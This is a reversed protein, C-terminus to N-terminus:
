IFYRRGDSVLQVQEIVISSSATTGPCIIIDVINRSTSSTFQCVGNSDFTLYNEVPNAYDADYTNFFVQSTSSVGRAKIMLTVLSSSPLVIRQLLGKYAPLGSTTYLKMFGSLDTSVTLDGSGLEKSWNDPVGDSNSDLQLDSNKVLNKRQWTKELILENNGSRLKGSVYSGHPSLFNILTSASVNVFRLDWGYQWVFNVYYSPTVYSNHPSLNLNSFLLPVFITQSVTKSLRLLGAYDASDSFGCIVIGNNIQAGWGSNSDIDFAVGVTDFLYNNLQFTSQESGAGGKVKIATRYAYMHINDMLVGDVDELYIGISNTRSKSLKFM